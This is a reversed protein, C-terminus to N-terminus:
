FVSYNTKDFNIVLFKNLIEKIFSIQIFTKKLKKSPFLITGFTHEIVQIKEKSMNEFHSLGSVEYITEFKINKFKPILNPNKSIGKSFVHQLEM